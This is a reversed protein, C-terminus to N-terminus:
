AAEIRKVEGVNALVLAIAPPPSVSNGVMRVQATKTFPKGNYDIDIRYEPPFGQALYLERPSLMRM